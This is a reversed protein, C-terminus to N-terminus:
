ILLSLLERTAGLCVLPNLEALQDLGNAGCGVGVASVGANRAMRLDHLSDGIMLTRERVVALEDMLQFLMTPDPKSATEDACRTAHFLGATGTARLAPDLGARIKGTAVALRYGRGRLEALMNPVGEFLSMATIPKSEYCRRYSEVVRAALEPSAGPYLTDMADRLSLGIVSRAAEDLPIPLSCDEAAQKLCDVIWDVSDFLTGDWDFVLLDFRDKM